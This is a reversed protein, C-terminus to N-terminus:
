AVESSHGSSTKRPPADADSHPPPEPRVVTLRLLSGGRRILPRRAQAVRPPPALTEGRQLVTWLAWGPGDGICAKLTVDAATGDRRSVTVVDGPKGLAHGLKVGWSDDNLKLWHPSRTVVQLKAGRHTPVSRTIGPTTLSTAPVM